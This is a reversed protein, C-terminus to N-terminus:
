LKKLAQRYLKLAKQLNGAKMHADGLLRTLDVDEPHEEIVNELDSIVDDMAANRRVLEEYASHASRLDGLQVHGRALDLLAGHDDPNARLRAMIGDLDV